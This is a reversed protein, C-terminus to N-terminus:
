GPARTRGARGAGAGGADAILRAYVDLYRRAELDPSHAALAQERAKRGLEARRGPDRLLAEVARSLAAVDGPPALLGTTGSEVTEAIGGVRFGVVPRGCALAELVTNPLNDQLSTIALIDAAAYALVLRESQPEVVGLSVHRVPSREAQRDKGVTLLVLDQDVRCEDLAACLAAFNKEARRLSSAVFLVVRANEPVGLAMRAERSPRPAFRTTDVANPVVTAAFRGLLSSQRAQEVLWRSPAVLHVREGPVHALARRKRSWVQRTLDRDRQSGLQPCCGCRATFRDCGLAYHCGGTFPNMDRLTWVVPTRGPVTKFFAPWDVFHAIWHLHVVDSPPLQAVLSGGSEHRCDTMGPSGAQRLARYPRTFTQRILQRRVWRRVRDVLNGPPAWSQVHPDQSRRNAVLMTSEHGLARLAGHVRYASLGAGGGRDSHSVHVIRM